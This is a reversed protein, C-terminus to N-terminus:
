GVLAFELDFPGFGGHRYQAKDPFPKLSLLWECPSRTVAQRWTVVSVALRIFVSWAPPASTRSQAELGSLVCSSTAAASTLCSPM